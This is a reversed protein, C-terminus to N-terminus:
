REQGKQKSAIEHGRRPMTKFSEMVSDVEGKTERGGQGMSLLLASKYAVDRGYGAAYRKESRDSQRSYM